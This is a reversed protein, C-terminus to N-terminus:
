AERPNAENAESREARENVASISANAWLAAESLHLLALSKEHSEPCVQKITRTLMEVEGRLREYKGVTDVAM